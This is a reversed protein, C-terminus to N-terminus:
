FLDEIKSLVYGANDIYRQASAIDEKLETTLVGLEEIDFDEEDTDRVEHFDILEEIKEPSLTGNLKFLERYTMTSYEKM